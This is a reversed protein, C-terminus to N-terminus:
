KAQAKEPSSGRMRDDLWRIAEAQNAFLQTKKTKQLRMLFKAAVRFVPNLVVIATWGQLEPREERAAMVTRSDPSISDMAETAILCPLLFLEGGPNSRRIMSEADEGSITGRMDLRVARAGCPLQFYTTDFPM